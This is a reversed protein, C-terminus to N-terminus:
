VTAGNAQITGANIKFTDGSGIASNELTGYLGDGGTTPDFSWHTVPDDVTSVIADATGFDCDISINVDGSSAVTWNAATVAFGTEYAGGGVTTRNITPDSNTPAGKHLWVIGARAIADARANLETTFLPM